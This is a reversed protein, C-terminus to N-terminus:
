GPTRCTHRLEQSELLHNLGECVPQLADRMRQIVDGGYDETHLWTRLTAAFAAQAAGGVAAPIVDDPRTGTREAVFAAVIQAWELWHAALGPRLADTQQQVAFRRRWLQEEDVAEAFAQVAASHVATAIPLAIPQAPLLTALRRLHLDFGRWVIDAKSPFYRFLTARGIGCAAAVETMSTQDFGKELFLRM